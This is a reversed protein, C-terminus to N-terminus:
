LCPNRAPSCLPVLIAKKGPMIGTSTTVPCIWTSRDRRCSDADLEKFIDMFGKGVVARLGNVNWSIMKIM